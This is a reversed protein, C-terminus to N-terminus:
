KGKEGQVAGSRMFTSLRTVCYRAGVILAILMAVLVVAWIIREHHITL